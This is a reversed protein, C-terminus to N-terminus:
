YSFRLGVKFSYNDTTARLNNGFSDQGYDFISSDFGVELVSLQPQNGLLAKLKLGYNIDGNIIGASAGVNVRKGLKVGVNVKTGYTSEPLIDSIYQTAGM